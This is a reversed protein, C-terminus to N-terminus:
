SRIATRTQADETDALPHCAIQIAHNFSNAIFVRTIRAFLCSGFRARLISLCDCCQANRAGCLVFSWDTIVLSLVDLATGLIVM